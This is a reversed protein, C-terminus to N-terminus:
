IIAPQLLHRSLDRVQAPVVGREHAHVGHCVEFDVLVLEDLELDVTLLDLKWREHDGSVRIADNGDGKTLTTPIAPLGLKDAGIGVLQLTGGRGVARRTEFDCLGPFPMIQADGAHVAHILAALHRLTIQVVLCRAAILGQGPVLCHLTLDNPGGCEGLHRFLRLVGVLAVKQLLSWTRFVAEEGM